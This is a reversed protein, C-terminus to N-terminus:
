SNAKVPTKRTDDIMKIKAVTYDFLGQLVYMDNFGPDNTTEVGRM